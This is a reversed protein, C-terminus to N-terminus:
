SCLWTQFVCMCVMQMCGKLIILLELQKAIYKCDEMYGISTLVKEKEGLLMAEKLREKNEVETEKMDYYLSSKLGSVFIEDRINICMYIEDIIDYSNGDLKSKNRVVLEVNSNKM